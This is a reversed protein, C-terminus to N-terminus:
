SPYSLVVFVDKSVRHTLTVQTNHSINCLRIDIIGLTVMHVITDMIVCLIRV